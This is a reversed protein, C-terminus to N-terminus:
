FTCQTLRHLIGNDVAPYTIEGYVWQTKNESRYFIFDDM